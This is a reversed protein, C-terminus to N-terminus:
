LLNLYTLLEDCYILAEEEFFIFFLAGAVLMLSLFATVAVCSRTMVLCSKKSESEEGCDKKFVVESDDGEEDIAESEATVDAQTLLSVEEEINGTEEALNNASQDAAQNSLLSEDKNEEEEAFLERKTPKDGSGFKHIARKWHKVLGDWQRRSITFCFQKVCDM